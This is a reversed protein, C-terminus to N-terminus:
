ASVSPELATEPVSKNIRNEIRKAARYGSEHVRWQLGILQGGKQYTAIVDWHPRSRKIKEVERDHVLDVYLAFTNSDLRWLEAAM